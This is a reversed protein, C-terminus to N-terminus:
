FAARHCQYNPKFFCSLNGGPRLTTTTFLMGSVVPIQSSALSVLEDLMSCRNVFFLSWPSSTSPPRPMPSSSCFLIFIFICLFSLLSPALARSSCAHSFHSAWLVHSARNWALGQSWTAEIATYASSRPPELLWCLSLGQTSDTNQDCKVMDNKARGIGAVASWSGVRTASNPNTGASHRFLDLAILWIISLLKGM